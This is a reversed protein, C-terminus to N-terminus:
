KYWYVRWGNKVKRLYTSGKYYHIKKGGIISFARGMGTQMKNRFKKAINKSKFTKNGM